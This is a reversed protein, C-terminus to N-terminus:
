QDKSQNWRRESSSKLPPLSTPREPILGTKLVEWKFNQLDANLAKAAEKLEAADSGLRVIQDEIGV